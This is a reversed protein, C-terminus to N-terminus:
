YGKCNGMSLTGSPFGLLDVSKTYVSVGTKKFVTHTSFYNEGDGDLFIIKDNNDLLKVMPVTTIEQTSDIYSLSASENDKFNSFTFIIPNSESKPLQHLIKNNIYYTSMVQPYSCTISKYSSINIENHFREKQVDEKNKVFLVLTLTIFLVLILFEKKKNKILNIM